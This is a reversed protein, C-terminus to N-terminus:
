ELDKDTQMLHFLQKRLEYLPNQRGPAHKDNPFTSNTFLFFGQQYQPQFLMNCGTYGTILMASKALHDLPGYSPHLIDFGLGYIHGDPDSLHNSRIFGGFGYEGFRSSGFLKDSQGFLRPAEPVYCMSRLIKMGDNGSLFLGAAGTYQGSLRLYNRTFPDHVVGHILSDDNLRQTPVVNRLDMEGSLLGGSLELPKRIFDEVAKEYPMNYISEILLKAIFSTSNSYRFHGLPKFIGASLIKKRILRASNMAHLPENLDLHLGFSLIHRVTVREMGDGVLQDGLWNKIPTDVNMITGNDILRLLLMNTAISKTVSSVDFLTNPTVEESSSDFMQHGYAKVFEWSFPGTDHHVVGYVCASFIGRKMAAGILYDVRERHEDEHLGSSFDRPLLGPPAVLTRDAFM